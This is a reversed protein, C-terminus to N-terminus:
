LWQRVSRLNYGFTIAFTKSQVLSLVIGDSSETTDSEERAREIESEGRWLVITENAM